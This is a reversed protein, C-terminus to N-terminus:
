SVGASQDGGLHARGLRECREVAAGPPRVAIARRAAPRNIEKMCFDGVPKQVPEPIKPTLKSRHEIKARMATRQQPPQFAM